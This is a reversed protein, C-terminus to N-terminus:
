RATIVLVLHVEEKSPNVSKAPPKKNCQSLMAQYNRELPWIQVSLKLSLHLLPNWPLVINIYSFVVFFNYVFVNDSSIFFCGTYSNKLLGIMTSFPGVQATAPYHIFVCLSFSKALPYILEGLRTRFM